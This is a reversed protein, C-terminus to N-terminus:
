LLAYRREEWMERLVISLIEVSVEKGTDETYKKAAASVADYFVGGRVWVELADDAMATTTLVGAALASCLLVSMLKKKM